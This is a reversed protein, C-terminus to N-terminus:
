LIALVISMDYPSLYVFYEFFLCIVTWNCDLVIALLFFICSFIYQQKAM